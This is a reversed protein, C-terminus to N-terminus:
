PRPKGGTVSVQLEIVLLVPEPEQIYCLLDTDFKFRNAGFTNANVINSGAEFYGRNLTRIDDPRSLNWLEPLEGGKLGLDQLLSGTGGDCFLWEKGLRERLSM